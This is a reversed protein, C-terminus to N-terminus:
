LNNLLEKDTLSSFNPKDSAKGNFIVDILGNNGVLTLEAPKSFACGKKCGSIHIKNYRLDNLRDALEHTNITSSSCSISGPCSYVKIKYNNDAIAFARHEVNNNNEFIFTKFPTFRINTPRAIKLFDLFLTADIRGYKAIYSGGFRKLNSFKIKSSKVVPIEMWKKPLLSHKVICSMRKIYKYKRISDNYLELLEFIYSIINKENIIRGLNSGDVYLINEGQDTKELRIDSFVDRLVPQTGLDIAISFKDPSKPFYYSKSSIINSFNINDDDRFWFPSIIIKVKDNEVTIEKELLEKSLKEIDLKKIGRIQINGRNTLDMLGNGMSLSLKCLHVAKDYSLSSKNPTIRLLYGDKALFAKNYFPCWGNKKIDIM